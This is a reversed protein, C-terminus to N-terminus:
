PAYITGEAIPPGKCLRLDQFRRTVGSFPGRIRVPCPCVEVTVFDSMNRQPADHLDNRKGQVTKVHRFRLSWRTELKVSWVEPTKTGGKLRDSLRPPPEADM